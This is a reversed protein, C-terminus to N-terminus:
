LRPVVVTRKSLGLELCLNPYLGKRIEGYVEGNWKRKVLETALGVAKAVVDEGDKGVEDVVGFEKAEAAKLKRGHLLIERRAAASVVKEKFLVNFYEPFTMGIDVESMYLVGKDGRMVVHDHSLALVFGAAAAHGAVAAITPMPLSILDAVVPKFSEVMHHLRDVFTAGGGTSQAWRLDFGNSFFKGHATTILASSSASSQSKIDSLASRIDSILTPNLRHDDDGTLTLIFINGRKEVTCM